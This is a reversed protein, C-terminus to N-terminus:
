AKQFRLRWLLRVYDWFIKVKMCFSVFDIRQQCNQCTLYQNEPWSHPYDVSLHTCSPCEFLYFPLEGTFRPAQAKKLFIKEGHEARNRQDPTTEQFMKGIFLNYALDEM